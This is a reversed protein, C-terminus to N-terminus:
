LGLQNKLIDSYNQNVSITYCFFVSTKDLKSPTFSKLTNSQDSKNARKDFYFHTM